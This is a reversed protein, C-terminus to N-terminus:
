VPKVRNQWIRNLLSHVQHCCCRCQYCMYGRHCESKNTNTPPGGADRVKYKEGGERQCHNFGHLQSSFLCVDAHVAHLDEIRNSRHDQDRYWENTPKMPDALKGKRSLYKAAMKGHRAESKTVVVQNEARNSQFSTSRGGQMDIQAGCPRGRV